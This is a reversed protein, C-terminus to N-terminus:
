TFLKENYIKAFFLPLGHGLYFKTAPAELLGLTGTNDL